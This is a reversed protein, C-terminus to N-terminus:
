CDQVCPWNWVCEPNECAYEDNPCSCDQLGVGTPSTLCCRGENIRYCHHLYCGPAPVLPAIAILLTSILLTIYLPTSSLM